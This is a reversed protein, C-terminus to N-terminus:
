APVSGHPIGPGCRARMIVRNAFRRPPRRASVAVPTRRQIILDSAPPRDPWGVHSGPCRGSTSLGDIAGLRSAALDLSNHPLSHMPAPEGERGSEWFEFLPELNEEDKWFTTFIAHLRDVASGQAGHCVPAPGVGSQDGRACCDFPARPRNPMESMARATRLGASAAHADGIPNHIRWVRVKAVGLNQPRRSM